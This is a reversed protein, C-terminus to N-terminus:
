ERENERGRDRGRWEGGGGGGGQREGGGGGGDRGERAREASECQSSRQCACSVELM